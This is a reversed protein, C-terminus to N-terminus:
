SSSMEAAKWSTVSRLPRHARHPVSPPRMLPVSWVADARNRAPLSSSATAAACAASRLAGVSRLARTSSPSSSAKVPLRSRASTTSSAAEAISGDVASTTASNRWSMRASMARRCNNRSPRTGSNRVSGVSVCRSCSAASTANRAPSRASAARWASAASAARGRAGPLCPSAANSSRRSASSRSAPLKSTSVVVPLYKQIGSRARASARIGRASAGARDATAARM